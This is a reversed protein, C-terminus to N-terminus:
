GCMMSVYARCVQVDQVLGETQRILALVQEVFGAGPRVLAAVAVSASGIGGYSRHISGDEGVPPLSASLYRPARAHSFSTRAQAANNGFGTSASTLPITAKAVQGGAGDMTCSPQALGGANTSLAPKTGGMGGDVGAKLDQVPTLTVQLPAVGVNTDDWCQLATAQHPTPHSPSSEGWGWGAAVRAPDALTFPMVLDDQSTGLQGGEVEWMQTTAEDEHGATSGPLSPRHTDKLYNMGLDPDPDMDLTPNPPMATTMTLGGMEALQLPTLHPLQGQLM